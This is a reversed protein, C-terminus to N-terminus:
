VHYQGVKIVFFLLGIAGCVAITIVITTSIPEPAAVSTIFEFSDQTATFIEGAISIQVFLNIYLVYYPQM